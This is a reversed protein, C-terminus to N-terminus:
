PKEWPIKRASISRPRANRCSRRIRSPWLATARDGAVLPFSFLSLFNTDVFYVGNEYFVNEGRRVVQRGAALVRSGDEIEPFESRLAALLPGPNFISHAESDKGTDNVQVVNYLRGANRHFTDANFHLDELVAIMAFYALGVALGVIGVLSYGKQRKLNRWATKIMNQLM